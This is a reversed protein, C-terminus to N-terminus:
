DSHTDRKKEWLEVCMKIKDADLSSFATDSELVYGLGCAVIEALFENTSSNWSHNTTILLGSTSLLRVYDKVESPNPAFGDVFIIDFVRDISPLVEISSGITMKIQKDVGFLEFNQNALSEHEKNLDITQVSCNNGKALCIASYGIATGIELINVSKTQNVIQNLFVGNDFPYGGCKHRNRHAISENYLDENFMSIPPNKL